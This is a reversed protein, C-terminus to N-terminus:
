LSFSGLLMNCDASLVNSIHEYSCASSSITACDLWDSFWCFSFWITKGPQREATSTRRRRPKQHEDHAPKRPRYYWRGYIEWVENHASVITFALSLHKMKSTFWKTHINNQNHARAWMRQGNDDECVNRKLNHARRGIFKPYFLYLFTILLLMPQPQTHLNVMFLYCVACLCRVFARWRVYKTTPVTKPPRHFTHFFWIVHTIMSIDLQCYVTCQARM